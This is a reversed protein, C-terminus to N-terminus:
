TWKSYASPVGELCVIAKVLYTFQRYHKRYNKQGSFIMFIISEALGLCLPIGSVHSM